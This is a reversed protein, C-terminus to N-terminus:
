LSIFKSLEENYGEEFPFILQHFSKRELFLLFYSYDFANSPRTSFKGRIILVFGGKLSSPVYRLIQYQKIVEEFIPEIQVKNEQLSLVFDDLYGKSFNKEFWEKVKSDYDKQTM